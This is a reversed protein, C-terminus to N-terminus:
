PSAGEDGEEDREVRRRWAEDRLRQLTSLAAQEWQLSAGARSIREGPDAGLDYSRVPPASTLGQARVVKYGRARLGELRWRGRDLELLADRSAPHDAWGPAVFPPDEPDPDEPPLLLALADDFGDDFLSLGTWTPHVPFGAFDALTPAIDVERVQWPVVLGARVGGPLKVYLPVRVQEDFLSTGPGVAGREGLEAGHGSVVVVLADEYRGTARLKGLLDGIAEDVQGVAAAYTAEDRAAAPEHLQVFLLSREARNAELFRWAEAVQRSAPTPPAEAPLGQRLAWWPRGLAYLALTASSQRAGLPWDPDFPYWDFGQDFGYVGSVAGDGPLGGTAYGGDRLVEAFTAAAQPLEAERGASRHSAVPLSSFLSAVSARTDPSSVVYQDFTVADAAFHALAPGRPADARLGEISLVVIDPKEAFREAQPRRPALTSAAGPAPARSFLWALVCAAGWVVGTGRPSAVVRLPTRELLRSVLFYAGLGAVVLGGLTAFTVTSPVGRGRYLVADVRALAVWGALGTATSVSAFAWAAGARMGLPPGFLALLVALGAGVVVGVAGYLLPGYLLAQYEAPRTAALVALAEVFGLSSAGCLAGGLGAWALEARRGAM